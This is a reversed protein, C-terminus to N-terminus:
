LKKIILDIYILPFILPISRDILSLSYEFLALEFNNM